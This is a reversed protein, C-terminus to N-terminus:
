KIGEGNKQIIIECVLVLILEICHIKEKIVTEEDFYFKLKERLIKQAVTMRSKVTGLPCNIEQSIEEHTLGGHYHLIVVEQQKKTLTRIAQRILMARENREAILQPNHQEDTPLEVLMDDTSITGKKNRNNRLYSIAKNTAIRHLWTSFQADGRFVRLSQWASIFVDQVIGDVDESSTLMKWVISYIPHYYREYLQEFAKKDGAAALRVVQAENPCPQYKKKNEGLIEREQRDDEVLEQIQKTQM